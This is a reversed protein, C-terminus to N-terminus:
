GALVTLVKEVMGPEAVQALVLGALALFITWFVKKMQENKGFAEIVADTDTKAAYRILKPLLVFLALFLLVAATLAPAPGSKQVLWAATPATISLSLMGAMVVEGFGFWAREEGCDIKEEPTLSEPDFRGIAYLIGLCFIRAPSINSAPSVDGTEPKNAM